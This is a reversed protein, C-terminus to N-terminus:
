IKDVACVSKRGVGHIGVGTRTVMGGAREVMGGAREVMYRNEFFRFYSKQTSDRSVVSGNSPVDDARTENGTFQRRCAFDPHM